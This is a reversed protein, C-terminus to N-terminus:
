LWREILHETNVANHINLSLVFSKCDNHLDAVMAKIHGVVEKLRAEGQPELIDLNWTEKPATDTALEPHPVIRTPTLSRNAVTYEYVCFQTGLASLGYLKPIPISGATFDLVRDCMQDDAAKSDTDYAVHTKLEIFLVPVKRRAILHIITFNISGAVRKFQPAIQYYESAPFLQNLLSNFPGYYDSEETTFKNVLEFQLTIFEPWPM